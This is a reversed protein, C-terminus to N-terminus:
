EFVELGTFVEFQVIVNLDPGYRQIMRKTGCSVPNFIFALRHAVDRIRLVHRALRILVYQAQDFTGIQTNVIRGVGVVLERALNAPTMRRPLFPNAQRLCRIGLHQRNEM